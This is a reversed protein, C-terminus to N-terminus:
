VGVTLIQVALIAERCPCSSLGGMMGTTCVPPKSVIQESKLTRVSGKVENGSPFNSYRVSVHAFKLIEDM